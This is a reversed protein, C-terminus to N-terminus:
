FTSGVAFKFTFAKAPLLNNNLVGARSPNSAWEATERDHASHYGSPRSPSNVHSSRASQSAHSQRDKGAENRDVTTAGRLAFLRM